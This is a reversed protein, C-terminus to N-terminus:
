AEDSRLRDYITWALRGIQRDADDAFTSPGGPPYTGQDQTATLVAIAVPGSGPVEIVGADGAVHILGPLTGTKHAVATDPPLYRPLRASLQQRELVAIVERRASEVIGLAAMADPSWITALLEVLDHPSSWTHRDDIDAVDLLANTGAAFAAVGARYVEHNPLGPAADGVLDRLLDRCTGGIHTDILGLDDAVRQVAPIGLHDLLVDTATNDSVVIMLLALDFLTPALGEDLFALFGSGSSRDADRLVHREQHLDVGEAGAWRYLAVLVFLKFISATPLRVDEDIGVHLGDSLRRCAVAPRAPGDAAVAAVAEQLDSALGSPRPGDGPPHPGPTM